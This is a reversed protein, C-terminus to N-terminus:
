KGVERKRRRRDAVEAKIIRAVVISAVVSLPLTYLRRRRRPRVSFLGASRDIIVTGVQARSEDLCGSVSFRSKKM